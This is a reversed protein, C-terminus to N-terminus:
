SDAMLEQGQERAGMGTVIAGQKTPHFGRALM